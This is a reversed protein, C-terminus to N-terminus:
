ALLHWWITPDLNFNWSFKYQLKWESKLDLLKKCNRKRYVPVSPAIGTTESVRWAMCIRIDRWGLNFFKLWFNYVYMKLGSIRNWLKVGTISSFSLQKVSLIVFFFTYASFNVLAAKLPKYLIEKWLLRPTYINKETKM